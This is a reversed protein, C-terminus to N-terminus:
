FKTSRIRSLSEAKIGLFSAIHYGQIREEINPYENLFKLYREKSSLLLLDSERSCKKIFENEFIYKELNLWKPNKECQSALWKKPISTVVSDELSQITLITKKETLYSTFAGAFSNELFFETNSEKDILQIFTRFLGKHIFYISNATDGPTVLVDGKYVTFQDLENFSHRLEDNSIKLISSMSSLFQEIM